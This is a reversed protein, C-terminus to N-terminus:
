RRAGRAVTREVVRRLARRALTLPRPTAEVGSQECRARLTPQAYDIARGYLYELKRDRRALLRELEAVDEESLTHGPRIHAPLPRDTYITIDHPILPGPGRER